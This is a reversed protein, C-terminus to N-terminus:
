RSRHQAGKDDALGRGGVNVVTVGAEVSTAFRLDDGCHAQRM